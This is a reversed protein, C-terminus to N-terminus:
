APPTSRQVVPPARRAAPAASSRALVGGANPGVRRGHAPSKEARPPRGPLSPPRGNAGPAGRPGGSCRKWPRALVRRGSGRLAEGIQVRGAGEEPRWRSVAIALLFLRLYGQLVGSGPGERTQEGGEQEGGDGRQRRSSGSCSSARRTREFCCSVHGDEDRAGAAVDPLLQRGGEEMGRRGLGDDGDGVDDRGAHGGRGGLMGRAHAADLGVEGQRLDDVREDLVGAGVVGDVDQVADHGAACLGVELETDVDVEIGGAVDEVAQAGGHRADLDDVGRREGDVAGRRRAEDDVLRVERGHGGRGVARLFEDDLGQDVVVRAPAEEVAAAHPQGRDGDPGSLGGLGRAAEGAVDDALGEVPPLGDEGDAPVSLHPDAGGVGHDLVQQV